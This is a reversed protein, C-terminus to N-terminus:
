PWIYLGTHTLINARLLTRMKDYDGSSDHEPEQWGDCNAPSVGSLTKHAAETEHLQLAAYRGPTAQEWCLTKGCDAGHGKSREGDKRPTLLFIVVRFTRTCRAEAPSSGAVVVWM